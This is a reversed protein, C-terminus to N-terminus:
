HAHPNTNINDLQPVIAQCVQGCLITANWGSGSNAGNTKLRITLSGSANSLSAQVMTNGNNLPNYSNNHKSLLPSSTNPGDYIYLTDDDKVDFNAFSIRVHTNPAVNGQLTIWYDQNNSYNAGSGGDDYFWYGCYQGSTNHTTSNLSITQNQGWLNISVILFLYFSFFIKM